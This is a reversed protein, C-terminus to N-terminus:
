SRRRCSRAAVPRSPASPSPVGARVRTIRPGFAIILVGVVAPHGARRTGRGCPRVLRPRAEGLGHRNRRRTDVAARWKVEHAAPTRLGARHRTPQRTRCAVKKPAESAPDAPGSFAPLRRGLALTLANNISLPLYLLPHRLAPAVAALARRRATVGKVTASLTGLAPLTGIARRVNM